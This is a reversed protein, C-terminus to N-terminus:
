HCSWKPSPKFPFPLSSAYPSSPNFTLLTPSIPMPLSLDGWASTKAQSCHFSTLLNPSAPGHLSHSSVTLTPSWLINIDLPFLREFSISRILPDLTDKQFALWKILPINLMTLKSIQCYFSLPQFALFKMEKVRQWLTIVKRLNFLTFSFPGLYFYLCGLAWASFLWRSWRGQPPNQQTQSGM